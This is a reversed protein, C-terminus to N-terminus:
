ITSVQNIINDRKMTNDNEKIFRNFLERNVRMKVGFRHKKLEAIM